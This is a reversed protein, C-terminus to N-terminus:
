VAPAKNNDVLLSALAEFVAMKAATGDMDDKHAEIAKELVDVATRVNVDDGSREVPQTNDEDVGNSPVAPPDNATGPVSGGNACTAADAMWKYRQCGVWLRGTKTFIQRAAEVYNGSKLAGHLSPWKSKPVSGTGYRLDIIAAKAMPKLEDWDVDSARLDRKAGQIMEEVKSTFLASNGDESMRLAGSNRNYNRALGKRYEGDDCNEKCPAQPLCCGRREACWGSVKAFEAEVESVTAAPANPSPGKKWYGVAPQRRFEPYMGGSKQQMLVGVGTSVLGLSDCYMVRFRGEHHELEEMLKAKWQEETADCSIGGYPYPASKSILCECEDIYRQTPDQRKVIADKKVTPATVSTETDTLMGNCTAASSCRIQTTILLSVFGFLYHIYKM